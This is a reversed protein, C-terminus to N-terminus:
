LIDPPPSYVPSPLDALSYALQPFTTNLCWGGSARHILSSTPVYDKSFTEFFKLTTKSVPIDTNAQVYDVFTKFLDTERTDNIYVIYLTDREVKHKVLKYIRGNNEFEGDIREYGKGDMQYPLAFPTKVTIMDEDQYSEADLRQKLDQNAHYRLGLYFGYYGVVNFLFIL